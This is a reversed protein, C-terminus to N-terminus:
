KLCSEQNALDLIVQRVRNEAQSGDEIGYRRNRSISSLISKQQIVEDQLDPDTATKELLDLAEKLKNDAVLQKVNTKSKARRPTPVTKYEPDHIEREYQRFLHLITTVNKSFIGVANSKLVSLMDEQPTRIDMQIAEKFDAYHNENIPDIQALFNVPFYAYRTLLDSSGSGLLAAAFGSNALISFNNSKKYHNKVENYASVVFDIKMRLHQSLARAAPNKTDITDFAKYTVELLKAQIDNDAKERLYIVCDSLLEIKSGLNDFLSNTKKMFFVLTLAIIIGISILIILTTTIIQLTEM